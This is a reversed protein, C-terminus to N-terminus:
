ELQRLYDQRSIHKKEDNLKQEDGTCKYCYATIFYTLELLDTDQDEQKLKALKKMAREAKGRYAENLISYLQAENVLTEDENAKIVKRFYVDSQDLFADRLSEHEIKKGANQYELGLQFHTNSNLEHHLMPLLAHNLEEVTEPIARLVSLYDDAYRFGVKEYIVEGAANAIAVKPISMARYKQATHKDTDIDVKLAVFNKSLQEMEPENWLKDDMARCPGCWVAWFDMVILKETSLAIGQATKLDHVWTIQAFVNGGMLALFSLLCIKIM